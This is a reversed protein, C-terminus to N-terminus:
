LHDRNTSADCSSESQPSRAKQKEFSKTPTIINYKPGSMSVTPLNVIKFTTRSIMRELVELNRVIAANSGSLQCFPGNLKSLFPQQPRLCTNVLGLLM